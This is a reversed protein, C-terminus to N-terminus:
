RRQAVLSRTQSPDLDATGIRGSIDRVVVRVTRANPPIALRLPLNTYSTASPQNPLKLVFKYLSNAILVSNKDLASVVAIIAAQESSGPGPEDTLSNNDVAAQCTTIGQPGLQCSELRVGVGNYTMGSVLAEHLDFQLDRATVVTQDPQAPYYGQKSQVILNPNKM